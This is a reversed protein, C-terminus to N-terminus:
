AANLHILQNTRHILIRGSWNDDNAFQIALSVRRLSRIYRELFSERTVLQPLHRDTLSYTM